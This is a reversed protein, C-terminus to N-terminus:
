VLAHAESLRRVGASGCWEAVIRDMHEVSLANSRARKIFLRSLRSEWRRRCVM